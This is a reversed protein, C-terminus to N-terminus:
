NKGKRAIKELRAPCTMKYAEIRDPKNEISAFFISLAKVMQDRWLFVSTSLVYERYGRNQVISASSTGCNENTSQNTAAITAVLLVWSFSLVGLLALGELLFFSLFFDPTTTSLCALATARLMTADRISVTFAFLPPPM